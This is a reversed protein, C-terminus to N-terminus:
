KEGPSEWPGGRDPEERYFPSGRARTLDRGGGELKGEESARQPKKGWVPGMCAWRDTTAVLMCMEQDQRLGRKLTRKDTQM